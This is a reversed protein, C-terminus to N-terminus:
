PQAENQCPQNAGVIEIGLVLGDADLDLVLMDGRITCRELLESKAVVATRQGFRLYCAEKPVGVKLCEAEREHRKRAPSM